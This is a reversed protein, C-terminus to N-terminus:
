TVVPLQHKLNSIGANLTDRARHIERSCRDSKNKASHNQFFDSAEQVQTEEDTFHSNYYLMNLQKM